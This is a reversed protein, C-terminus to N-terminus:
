KVKKEREILAQKLEISAQTWIKKLAKFNKEVVPLNQVKASSDEMYILDNRLSDLGLLILSGKLKHIVKSFLQYEKNQIKIEADNLMLPIQRNLVELMEFVFDDAGLSAEKIKELNIIKFNTKDVGININENSKKIEVKLLDSITEKLHQANFPKSLCQDAGSQIAKEMLSIEASATLAIIPFDAYKKIKRIRKITEFGDMVPM